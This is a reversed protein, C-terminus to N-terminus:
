NNTRQFGTTQIFQFYPTGPPLRTPDLFSSDFVWNRAPPSYTLNAVKFASNNNHANYLNIISGCYNLRVGSWDELFRKFNHVGGGLRPDGGGQNPLAEYSSQADGSLMAFRTHTEIARRKNGTIDYPYLFSRSDSWGNSLITIADAAISAPIHDATNLPRYDNWPTPTGASVISSANYNGLVYVGNESAITFGRTKSADLSDYTGPLTQGNILRVGRRYFPHDVAAAYGTSVFSGFYNPLIPAFPPDTVTPPSFANNATYKAAEGNTLSLPTLYSVDLVGNANIDEGKQLVNDNNGYIDEMDYEGDNDFDGRRDSIYFVWGSKQPVDNKTPDTLNNRLVHTTDNFYKTGTPMNADFEGALFRKLNAVDIDILSMVGAWPVKTGYTTATNLITPDANYIGERSDFMEIPFPVVSKNRLIDVGNVVALKRHTATELATTRDTTPLCVGGAILCDETNVITHSAFAPNWGAYNTMYAQSTTDAGIFNEGPVVFRQLKIISRSDIFPTSAAASCATYYNATLLKFREVSLGDYLCPAPETVGLSLIDATVDQTVVTNTIENKSVLEIKIWMQRSPLAAGTTGFREGNLRTATYNSAAPLMPVPQYGRGVGVFSAESDGSIDGDLRKGCVGAVATEGVGSACGPLRSKRDSLSVRIGDKNAYRESSTVVSDAEAAAVPRVVPATPTGTRDNFLDGVSRGRKILEIYDVPVGANQSSIKLPLDLRPQRALLNGGFQAAYTSAWAANGYQLPMDLDYLDSNIPSVDAFRPVGNAPSKVVSGMNNRLQVPAGANYVFVNEGWQTYPRGNRGTDTVIEGHTSVRSSFYLGTQAMLFLSGNSHVRGGFDFRPGPHFELNDNYFIGFQFIPIRNNLINRTLQVQTGGLDTATTRLRWTDTTAYLGAFAGKDVVEYESAGLQDVEQNFTYQPTLGAVGAARLPNFDSDAPSLKVEFVKNFNRTMTELSGQAAYFSRAESTENGVAAAESATRSLALAVFASLLVLVFVAIVIASGRENPAATKGNSNKQEIELTNM